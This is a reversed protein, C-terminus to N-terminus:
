HRKSLASNKSGRRSINKDSKVDHIAIPSQNSSSQALNHPM